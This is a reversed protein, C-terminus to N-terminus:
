IKNVLSNSSYGGHNADHGVNFGIFASSFGIVVAFLLMMWPGFQNSIILLYSGILTGFGVVTKLIMAWNAHTSLNREKFYSNVREKVTPFFEPTLQNPFKITSNM